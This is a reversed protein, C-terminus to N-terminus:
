KENVAEVDCVITYEAQPTLEVVRCTEKLMGDIPSDVNSNLWISIPLEDSVFSAILTRGSTWARERHDNWRGFSERLASRVEHLEELSSVMSFVLRGSMDIYVHHWMLAANFKAATKKLMTMVEIKQEIKQEIENM